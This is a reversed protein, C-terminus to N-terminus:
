FSDQFSCTVASKNPKGNEILILGQRCVSKDFNPLQLLSLVVGHGPTLNVTTGVDRNPVGDFLWAFSRGIRKFDVQEYETM